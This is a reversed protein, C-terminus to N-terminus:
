MFNGPMSTTSIIPQSTTVVSHRTVTPSGMIQQSQYAPQYQPAPVPPLRVPQASQASQVSRNVQNIQPMSQNVQNMQPMSQNMPQTTVQYQPTQYQQYQPSQYQQAPMVMVPVPASESPKEECGYDSVDFDNPQGTIVSHAEHLKYEAKSVRDYLNRRAVNYGVRGSSAAAVIMFTLAAVVLAAWIFADAGNRDPLEPTYINNLVIYAYIVGIILAVVMLFIFLGHVWESPCWFSEHGAYAIAIILGLAAAIFILAYATKLDNHAKQLESSSNFEPLQKIKNSASVLLIGVVVLLITAGVFGGSTLANMGVNM